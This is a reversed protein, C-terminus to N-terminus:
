YRSLFNYADWVSNNLTFRELETLNKTDINSVDIHAEVPILLQTTM